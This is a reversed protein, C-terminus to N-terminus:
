IMAALERPCFKLLKMSGAHYKSLIPLTEILYRPLQSTLLKGFNHFQARYFSAKKDMMRDYRPAM